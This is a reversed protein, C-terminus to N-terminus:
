ETVEDNNDDVVIDNELENVIRNYEEDAAISTALGKNKLDNLDKYNASDLGVQTIVGVNQLEDFVKKDM